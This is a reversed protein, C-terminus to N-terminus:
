MLYNIASSGGLGKGRPHQHKLNGNEKQPETRFSYDYDPNSLVQFFAAPIDILPDGLHSKGAEIVGVRVNPDESLRAALVLGATGGGVILFDLDCELFEEANRVLAPLSRTTM